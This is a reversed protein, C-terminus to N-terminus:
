ALDARGIDGALEIMPTVDNSAVSYGFIQHIIPNLHEWLDEGKTTSDAIATLPHNFTDFVSGSSISCPPLSRALDQLADLEPIM